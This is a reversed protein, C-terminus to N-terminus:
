INMSLGSLIGRETVPDVATSHADVQARREARVVGGPRNHSLAKRHNRERWAYGIWAILKGYRAVAAALHHIVPGLMTINVHKCVVHMCVEQAALDDGM